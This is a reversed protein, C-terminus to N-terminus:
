DRCVTGKYQVVLYGNGPPAFLNFATGTVEITGSSANAWKGTGGTVTLTLQDSVTGDQNFTFVAKGTATLTDGPGTVFTDATTVDFTNPSTPTLSTLIATKVGQLGGAVTGVVRPVHPNEDAVTVEVVRGAVTVCDKAMASGGLSLLAGLALLFSRKM